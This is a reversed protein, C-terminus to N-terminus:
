NRNASTPWPIGASGLSVGILKNEVQARASRPLSVGHAMLPWAWAGNLSTSANLKGATPSMRMQESDHRTQPFDEVGGVAIYTDFRYFSQLIGTPLM